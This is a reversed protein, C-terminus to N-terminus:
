LDKEYTFLVKVVYFNNLHDMLYGVYLEDGILIAINQKTVVMDKNYKQSSCLFCLTHHSYEASINLDIYIVHQMQLLSIQQLYIM